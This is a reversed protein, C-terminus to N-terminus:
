IKLLKEIKRKLLHRKRRKKEPKLIVKLPFRQNPKLM